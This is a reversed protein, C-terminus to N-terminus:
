EEHQKLQFLSTNLLGFWSSLLEMLLVKLILLPPPTRFKRPPSIESRISRKQCTKPRSCPPSKNM